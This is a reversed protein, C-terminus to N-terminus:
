VLTRTLAVRDEGPGDYDPVELGDFGMARHFALSATNVPSTVCRVETRGREEATVFFWEYLIRGIERGRHAPDVGVFHIYAVRGDAQSEFGCLFGVREGSAADVAVRTTAPFHTFFLRPLMAAMHRGGWWDDLREVFYAHDDPTASRLEIGDRGQM